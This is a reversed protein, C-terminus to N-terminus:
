IRKKVQEFSVDFINKQTRPTAHLRERFSDNEYQPGPVVPSVQTM